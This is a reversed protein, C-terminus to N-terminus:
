CAVFIALYLLKISDPQLVMDAKCRGHSAYTWTEPIPAFALLEKFM